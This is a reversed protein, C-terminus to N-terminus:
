DLHFLRITNARALDVVQQAPIGKIEAMKKATHAIMDSQCRQGRFPVPAMYPCDTELLFRDNPTVAASAVAKKANTFTLVGTYGIYMGLKLIEKATEPSGSFCHVVGKPRYKKLLALTDATAERSHIVVPLDCEKALQLQQEFVLQQIEKPDSDEYHYDLGIEGIGVVKPNECFQKLTSIYDPHEKLTKSAVEPHIGVTCFFYPYEKALQQSTYCSKLDCGINIFHSVGNQHIAEILQQRNEDFTSDDYHCHSDFIGTLKGGNIPPLIKEKGM